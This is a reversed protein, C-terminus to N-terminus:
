STARGASRRARPSPARLGTADNPDDAYTANGTSLIAFSKGRRPFGALKTTSVAAPKSAPPVASFVARRVLSRERAMARALPTASPDLPYEKISSAGASARPYDIIGASAPATVAVCAGTVLIGGIASRGSLRM